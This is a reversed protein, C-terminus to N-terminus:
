SSSCAPVNVVFLERTSKIMLWAPTVIYQLMKCYLVLSQFSSCRMVKGMCGSNGFKLSSYWEREVVDPDTIRSGFAQVM